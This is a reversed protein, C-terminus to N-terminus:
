KVKVYDKLLNYKSDGIGSVNKIDEINEFKGNEERYDIIKQATSEGIGPLVILETIGATNINIKSNKTNQENEIINEGSDEIIYNGNNEQKISPIIIKQGDLLKYALNVKCLDADPTIGGAKEIADSVRSEEELEYIGSNKVEGAIHIKIKMIEEKTTNKETIISNQIIESNDIEINADVQTKIYVYLIILFLIINIILFVCLLKNKYIKNFIKLLTKHVNNEETINENDNLNM